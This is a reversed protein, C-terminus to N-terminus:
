KMSFLVENANTFNQESIYKRLLEKSLDSM